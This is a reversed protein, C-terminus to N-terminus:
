AATFVNRLAVCELPLSFIKASFLVVQNYKTYSESYPPRDLEVGAKVALQVQGSNLGKAM